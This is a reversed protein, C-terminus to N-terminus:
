AWPDPLPLLANRAQRNGYGPWDEIAIGHGRWDNAALERSLGALALPDDIGGTWPAQGAHDLMTAAITLTGPSRLLEIVRGQQPYDILAPATVEWWTDHETITTRHTHGNVWLVLSPHGRLADALEPGLVRRGAGPATVDNIMTTLPHHSALVVYRREADAAALEETLWALQPEDLSGQWGGHEDVTDLVLLTIGDAPDARYYPLGDAGFGHGAPRAAPHRHADLFEARSILRRAPDATVTRFTLAALQPLAAPDNAEFAALLARGQERTWDAPVGAPKASGVAFDALYV